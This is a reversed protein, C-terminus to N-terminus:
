RECTCIAAGLERREFLLGCRPCEARVVGARMFLAKLLVVWLVAYGVLLQGNMSMCQSTDVRGEFDQLPAEGDRAAVLRGVQDDAAAADEGDERALPQVDVHRDAVADDRPEARVVPDLRDVGVAGVDDGAEDVRM